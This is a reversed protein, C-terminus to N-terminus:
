PLNLPESFIANMPVPRRGDLDDEWHFRFLRQGTKTRLNEWRAGSAGSVTFGVPHDSDLQKADYLVQPNYYPHCVVDGRRVRSAKRLPKVM